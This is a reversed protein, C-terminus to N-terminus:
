RAEDPERFGLKAEIRRMEEAGAHDEDDYGLIHLLGHLALLSIEDIATATHRGHEASRRAYDLSIIVDGLIAAEGAPLDAEAVAFALVDTTADIGRYERNLRHLEADGTIVIALEADPRVALADMAASMRVALRDREAPSLREDEDIVLL